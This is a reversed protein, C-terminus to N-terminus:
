SQQIGEIINEENWIKKSGIAFFQLTTRPEVIDLM